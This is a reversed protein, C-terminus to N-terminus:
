IEVLLSLIAIMALMFSVRSSVLIITNKVNDDYFVYVNARSHTTVKYATVFMLVIIVM